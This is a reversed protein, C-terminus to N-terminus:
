EPQIGISPIVKGWHAIEDGMLRALADPGQGLATMGQLKLKAIVDPRQLAATM